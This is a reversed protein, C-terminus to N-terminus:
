GDLTVEFRMREWPNRSQALEVVRASLSEGRDLMQAVATNDAKPVFGLKYQKFHVAVANKDYINDQERILLLPTDVQLRPFVQEGDYYQFGAIPSQQVIIKRAPTALVVAPMLPLYAGGQLFAKLFGRRNIM